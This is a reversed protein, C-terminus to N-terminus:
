RRGGHSHQGGRARGEQAREWSERTYHRGASDTFGSGRGGNARGGGGNGGRGGSSRGGGGNGGRGSSGGSRSSGGYSSSSGGSRSGSRSSSGRRGSSSGRDDDSDYSSGRGGGHSHQGGMARGEQAREWSDRSYHRGASDTYDGGQDEDDEYSSSRSSSRRSSSYGRDDDDDDYGGRGGGSGGRSGAFQGYEDREQMESSRRGGEARGEYGGFRGGRDDEDDYSSSRSSGRRSSSYGRDDDEDYGGRGGGSGGRSGVFQGYEDREQMQSSRRGGESRGEYGRDDDYRSSGRSSGGRDEYSDYEDRRAMTSTGKEISTIDSGQGAAVSGSAEPNVAGTALASLKQDAAKEQGLIEELAKRDNERELQAAMAAATGYAAMEYHEARQAAGILAADKASAEGEAGLYEQSEEIIGAIGKCKHRVNKVGAGQLLALVKEGQTVTEAQHETFIQKLAENGAAEALRTLAAALQKEVSYLDKLQAQYVSELSKIKM